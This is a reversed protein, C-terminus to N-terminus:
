RNKEDSTRGSEIAVTATVIVRHLPTSQSPVEHFSMSDLAGLMLQIKELTARQLRWASKRNAVSVSASRTAYQRRGMQLSLKRLQAELYQLDAQAASAESSKIASGRIQVLDGRTKIIAGVRLLEQLVSKSTVDRGYAKVLKSFDSDKGKHSLARPQGRRNCYKTDRRWGALVVDLRNIPTQPASFKAPLARLLKRVDIRNVGALTAIQSQNVRIGQNRAYAEAAQVFAIRLLREARPANIGLRLLVAAIGKLAHALLLDSHRSSHERAKKAHV